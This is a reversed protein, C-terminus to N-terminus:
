AVFRNDLEPHEDMFVSLTICHWAAAIIHKSGTEPDIDEGGWFSLRHRDLADYSDSWDYGKRWNHADYKVAGRGYHLGLEALAKVPILSARQLNNAKRAGTVPHVKIVEDTSM